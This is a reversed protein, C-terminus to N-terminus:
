IPFYLQQSAGHKRTPSLFRRSWFNPASTRLAGCRLGLFRSTPASLLHAARPGLPVFLNKMLFGRWSDTHLSSSVVGRPIREMLTRLSFHFQRKRITPIPLLSAPTSRVGSM